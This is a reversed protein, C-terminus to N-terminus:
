AASVGNDSESENSKSTLPEAAHAPAQAAEKADTPTEQWFNLLDKLNHWMAVFSTTLLALTYTAAVICFVSAPWYPVFGVSLQLLATVFCAIVAASLFIRLRDLPALASGHQGVAKTRRDHRKMYEPHDYLEKKMTTIIFTELAFLFGGLSLFGGFLEGRLNDGYFSVFEASPAAFPVFLLTAYLLLTGTLFVASLVILRRM